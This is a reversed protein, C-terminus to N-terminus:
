LQNDIGKAEIDLNINDIASPLGAIQLFGNTLTQKIDFTPISAIVTKEKGRIGYVVKKTAYTGNVSGDLNLLGAFTWDPWQLADSLTGLDITSNVSSHIVLPDVGQI